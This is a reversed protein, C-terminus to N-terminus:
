TCTCLAHRVHAQSRTRDVARLTCLNPRYEISKEVLDEWCIRPKGMPWCTRMKSNSRPLSSIQPLIKNSASHQIHYSLHSIEGFRHLVSGGFTDCICTLAAFARCNCRIECHPTMLVNSKEFFPRCSENSDKSVLDENGCIHSVGPTALILLVDSACVSRRWVVVRFPDDLQHNLCCSQQLTAIQNSNDTSINIIDVHRCTSDVFNKARLGFMLSVFMREEELQSRKWVKGFIYSYAFSLITSFHISGQESQWFTLGM